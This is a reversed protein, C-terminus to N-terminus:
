SNFYAVKVSTGDAIKITLYGLPTPMASAAGAAGVTSTQLATVLNQITGNIEFETLAGGAGDDFTITKTGSRRIRADGSGAGDYFTFAANGGGASSQIRLDLNSAAGDKFDIFSINGGGRDIVLGSDITQTLGGVKVVATDTSVLDGTGTPLAHQTAASAGITPAILSTAFFGTRWRLDTTGIDRANNSSPYVVGAVNMGAAGVYVNTGGGSILLQTDDVYFQHTGDPSTLYGGTATAYFITAGSGLSLGGGISVTDGFIGVAVAGTVDNGNVEFLRRPSQGSAQFTEYREMQSTAGTYYHQECHWAYSSKTADIQGGVDVNWGFVMVPNSRDLPDDPQAYNAFGWNWPANLGDNMSLRMFDGPNDLGQQIELTAGAVGSGTFTTFLEEPIAGAAAWSVASGDTTLFEGAHGTQLPISVLQFPDSAATVAADLDVISDLLSFINEDTVRYDKGTATETIMIDYVYDSATADQTDARTFTFSMTGASGSVIVGARAVLATSTLRSRRVTMIGTYGTLPFVTTGDQKKVAITIVAYEGQSVEVTDTPWEASGTGDKVIATIAQNM